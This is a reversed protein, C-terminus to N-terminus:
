RFPRQYSVSVKVQYAKQTWNDPADEVVWSLRPTTTEIGIASTYHEVKIQTVRTM